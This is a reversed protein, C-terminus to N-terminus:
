FKSRGSLARALTGGDIYDLSSGVPLGFALRSTHVGLHELERKVYLATADGELTSDLAIVVEKIQLDQIRQKLSDFRLQEPGRGEMPSLVGGLVHYLGKYERTDEVAFADRPSAIICLVQTDRKAPDCFTCSEEGILCGCCSCRKLKEPIHRIAEAMEQLYEPKWELMQFVFREASKNGVGPLRKLVEIVKLLHQPYPMNGDLRYDQFRYNLSSNLLIIIGSHKTISFPRKVKGRIKNYHKM